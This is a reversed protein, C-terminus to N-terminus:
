ASPVGDEGRKAPMRSIISLLAMQEIKEVTRGSTRPTIQLRIGNTTIEEYPRLTFRHFELRTPSAQDQHSRILDDRLEPNPVEGRDVIHLWGGPRLIKDALEYAKNQVHLRYDGGGEIGLNSLNRCSERFKYTGMLWVTVADFPAERMLLDHLKGDDLLLDAHVVTIAREIKIPGQDILLDHTGDPHEHYFLRVIGTVPRGAAAVAECTTDLCDANEELAVIAPSFRDLLALLGSGVGCGIDLIKRPQLADLQAAMWDYCGQSEIHRANHQWHDRYQTKERITYPIAM